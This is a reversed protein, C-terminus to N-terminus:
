ATRGPMARFAVADAADAEAGRLISSNAGLATVGLFQFLLGRGLWALLQLPLVALGVIPVFGIFGLAGTALISAATALTVMCLMMLFIGGVMRWERLIVGPLGRVATRVGCDREVILIQVLLYALNVLTIWVALGLSAGAAVASGAVPWQLANGRYTSILFILYLLGSVAYAVLLCLGLRLFRRAYRDCGELFREISFAGAQKVRAFTLPLREIPPATREAAVIVHVTGAKIVFMLLSGGIVVVLLGVFYAVLAGTHAELTEVVVSLSEQLGGALLDGIGGGVLLAVLFAAGVVPVMLLGKFAAEAVFQIVIVEWNAAAVLAGRKLASKLALTIM